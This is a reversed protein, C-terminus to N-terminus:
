YTHVCSMFLLHEFMVDDSTALVLLDQAPDITLEHFTIDFNLTWELIPPDLTIMKIANAELPRYEGM